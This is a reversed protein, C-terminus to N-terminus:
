GSSSLTVPDYYVFVQKYWIFSFSFFLMAGFVAIYVFLPNRSNM